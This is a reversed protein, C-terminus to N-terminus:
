RCYKGPIRIDILEELIEGVARSQRQDRNIQIYDNPENAGRVNRMDITEVRIKYKVQLGQRESIEM